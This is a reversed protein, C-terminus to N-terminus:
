VEKVDEESVEREEDGRVAKREGREGREGEGTGGRERSAWSRKRATGTRM